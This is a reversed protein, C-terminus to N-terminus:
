ETPVIPPVLALQKVDGKFTEILCKQSKLSNLECVLKDITTGKQDILGTNPFSTRGRGDSIELRNISNNIDGQLWELAVKLKTEVRHISGNVDRIQANIQNRVGNYTEPDYSDVAPTTNM